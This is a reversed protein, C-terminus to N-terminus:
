LLFITSIFPVSINLFEFNNKQVNSISANTMKIQTNVCIPNTKLGTVANNENTNIGKM